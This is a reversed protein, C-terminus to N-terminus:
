LFPGKNPDWTHYAVIGDSTIYFTDGIMFLKDPPIPKKTDPKDKSHDTAIAIYKRQAFYTLIGAIQDPNYAGQLGRKFQEMTVLNAPNEQSEDIIVKIGDALPFKTPIPITTPAGM